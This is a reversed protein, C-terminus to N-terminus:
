NIRSSERSYPTGTLALRHDADLLRAAKASQSNPNKVVQAEDLVVYDFRYSHLEEIDRRMLGYSTVIM